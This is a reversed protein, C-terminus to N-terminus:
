LADRLNQCRVKFVDASVGAGLFMAFELEEFSPMPPEQSGTLDM